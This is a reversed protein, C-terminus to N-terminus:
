QTGSGIPPRLKPETKPAAPPQTLAKIAAKAPKVKEAEPPPAPGMPHGFPAPSTTGLGQPWVMALAIMAAAALLALPYFLRDRM